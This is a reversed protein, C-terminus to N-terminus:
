KERRMFWSRYPASAKGMDHEAVVRCGFRAYLPLNRQRQTSLVVPAPRRGLEEDLARFVEALLTTGFGRGQAEPAVAVAHVHWFAPEGAVSRNHRGFEGDARAIRSVTHPGQERLTPWVWHRVLERRRHPVGGPPELTATGVIKTGDEVVWTLDLKQHWVLNREFFRVMDVQRTRENPHMYAYAPNDGFARALLSATDAVDSSGLKRVRITM